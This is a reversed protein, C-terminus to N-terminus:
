SSRPCPRALRLWQIPRDRESRRRPQRFRRHRLGKSSWGSRHSCRCSDRLRVNSFITLRQRSQHHYMKTNTQKGAQRFLDKLDQWGVQFPLQLDRTLLDIAVPSIYVFTPSSSKVDAAEGWAWAEVEWVEATAVAAATDAAPETGETTDAAVVM